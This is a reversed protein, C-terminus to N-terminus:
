KMLMTRPTEEENGEEDWDYQSGTPEWNGDVEGPGDSQHLPSEGREADAPPVEEEQPEADVAAHTAAKERDEGEVHVAAAHPREPPQPCDSQIHGPQGCRYCVPGAQRPAVGPVARFETPKHQSPQPRSVGKYVPLKMQMILPGKSAMGHAQPRHDHHSSRRPGIHVSSRSPLTLAAWRMLSGHAWTTACPMRLALPWRQWSSWPVSNLPTAM